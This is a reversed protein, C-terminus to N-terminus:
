AAINAPADIIDLSRDCGLASSPLRARGVTPDMLAVRQADEAQIVFGPIEVINPM